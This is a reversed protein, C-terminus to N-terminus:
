KAEWLTATPGCKGGDARSHDCYRLAPPITTGDVPSKREPTDVDARCKAWRALDKDHAVLPPLFHKCSTCLRMM